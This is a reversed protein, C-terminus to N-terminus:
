KRSSLIIFQFFPFVAVSYMMTNFLGWTHNVERTESYLTMINVDFVTDLTVNQSSFVLHLTTVNSIM